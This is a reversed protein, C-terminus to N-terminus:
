AAKMLEVLQKGHAGPERAALVPCDVHLAQIEPVKWFIVAELKQQSQGRPLVLKSPERLQKGTVGEEEEEEEV